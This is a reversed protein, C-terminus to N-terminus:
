SVVVEDVVNLKVVVSAPNGCAGAILVDFNPLPRGVNVESIRGDVRTCDVCRTCLHCVFYVLVGILHHESVLPNAGELDLLLVVSCDPADCPSVRVESLNNGGTSHVLLNEDIFLPLFTRDGVPLCSWIPSRNLIDHQGAAGPLAGPM